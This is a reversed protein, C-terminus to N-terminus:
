FGSIRELTWFMAITGVCYGLTRESSRLWYFPTHKITQSCLSILWFIFLVASVFIIQGLEVGLNFALLAAPIETQPLGIDALASAFGFGHLLGFSASVAVPYRWTLTDRQDLVVERALFVISLAIVAEVPPIPIRVLELGALSLTISHALTFGTITILIRRWTRAIFILCAVFLLHDKGELIHEVGFVLYTKVINWFGPTGKVEFSTSAATLRTTESSGDLRQIRVLVDTSTRELGQIGIVGGTLGGARSVNAYELYAAGVFKGYTESINTNDPLTVQLDLRGGGKAPVKWLMSFNNESSQKFELYAPRYEDAYVPDLFLMLMLSCIFLRIM